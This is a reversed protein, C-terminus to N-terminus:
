FAGRTVLSYGNPTRQFGYAALAVGARPDRPALTLETFYRRGVIRVHAAADMEASRGALPLDLVGGACGGQGSLVPADVFGGLRRATAELTDTSVVLTGAQCGGRTLVLGTAEVEASGGLAQGFADRAGLASLDIRGEFADLRVGGPMTAIRGEGVGAPGDMAVTGSLRGTLLLLLRPRVRLTGLDLGALRAEEIVGDWVRGSARGEIPADTLALVLSLPALAAGVAVTLLM